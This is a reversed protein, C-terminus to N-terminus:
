VNSRCYEAAYVGRYHPTWIWISNNMYIYIDIWLIGLTVKELWFDEDQKLDVFAVNVVGRLQNEEAQWKRESIKTGKVALIWAEESDIVDSEFSEDTITQVEFRVGEMFYAQSVLFYEQFFSLLLIISFFLRNLLNLRM